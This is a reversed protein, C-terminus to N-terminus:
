AFADLRVSRGTVEAHKMASIVKLGNVVQRAFAATPPKRMRIAHYFEAWQYDGSRSAFKGETLWNTEYAVSGAQEYADALIKDRAADGAASQRRLEIREITPM